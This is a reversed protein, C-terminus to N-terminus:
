DGKGGISKTCFWWDFCEILGKEQQKLREKKEMENTPAPVIAKEGIIQNEPWDAPLAVDYYDATQLASLTRLIEHFGRGVEAPYFFIARIVGNPDVFYVGRVTATDGSTHIMGLTKAVTGLPDAIIPFTIPVGLHKDIWETWKMHAQVQDVSLGILATNRKQFQSMLTQFAVFETTCVPTFDGPHSFIIFWKGSYDDPLTISGFTTEVTMQPFADGITLPRQTEIQDM